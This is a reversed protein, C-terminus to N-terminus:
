FKYGLSVRHTLGVDGLPVFGYDLTMKQYSFGVGATVGTVGDVESTTRSNYGARLAFGMTESVPVNYETGVGLYPDNDNPFVGDLALIMSKTVQYASGVRIALPIDEEVQDYKLQTGLNVVTAAFRVKNDLYAPSLVGFDVAIASASDIIKSNIYKLSLGASGGLLPYAYGISLAMDSPTFDGTTIGSTDTEDIKGSSFYQFGLGLAGYNGLNHAYAAYDFYSSDIYPAHMLTLSGNEVRSLAATNWYMASADDAVASFAEGMASARAGVGLKLFNAATTGKDSNGFAGFATSTTLLLATVLSWRSAVLSQQKIM